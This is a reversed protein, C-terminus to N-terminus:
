GDIGINGSGVGSEFSVEGGSLSLFSVEVGGLSTGERGEDSGESLGEDIVDSGVIGTHLVDDGGSSVGEVSGEIGLPFGELGGHGVVSSLHLSEEFLDVVVVGVIEIGGGGGSTIGGWPGDFLVVSEHAFEVVPGLGLEGSLVGHEGVHSVLVGGGVGTHHILDGNLSESGVSPDGVESFGVGNSEVAESLILNDGEIGVHIGFEGEELIGSGSELLFNVVM